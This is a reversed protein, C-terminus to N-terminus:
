YINKKKQSHKAVWQPYHEPWLKAYWRSTITGLDRWIRLERAFSKAPVQRAMDIPLMACDNLLRRYIWRPVLLLHPISAESEEGHAIGAKFAWRRFYRKSVCQADVPAFVKLSPEYAISVGAQMSRRGFEHDMHRFHLESFMGVRDFVARRAAMNSGAPAYIEPAPKLRQDGLDVGALIAAMSDDYWAPPGNSPWNLLTKGGTLELTEDAFVEAIRSIWEPPFVIDDDSFALVSKTSLRIATNLAFQKGQRPEFVYHLQ